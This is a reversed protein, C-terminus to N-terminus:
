ADWDEKVVPARKRLLLSAAFGVVAQLGCGLALIVSVIIMWLTNM